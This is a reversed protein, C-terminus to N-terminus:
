LQADGQAAMALLPLVGALLIALGWLRRNM